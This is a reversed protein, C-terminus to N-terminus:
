VRESHDRDYWRRSGGRNLRERSFGLHRGVGDSLDKFGEPKPLESQVNNRGLVAPDLVEDKRQKGHAATAVM